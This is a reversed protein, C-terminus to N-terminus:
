EPRDGEKRKRRTKRPPAPPELREMPTGAICDKWLAYHGRRQAEVSSLLLALAESYVGQVLATPAGALVLKGALSAMGEQIYAGLVPERNSLDDLAEPSGRKGIDHRASVIHDADVLMSDPQVSSRKKM